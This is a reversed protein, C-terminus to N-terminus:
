SFSATLPLSPHRTPTHHKGHASLLFLRCRVHTGKTDLGAMARVSLSDDTAALGSRRGRERYASRCGQTSEAGAPVRRVTLALAAHWKTARSTTCSSQEALYSADSFGVYILSFPFRVDRLEVVEIPPFLPLLSRM